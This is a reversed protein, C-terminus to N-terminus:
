NAAHRARAGSRSKSKGPSRRRMLSRLLAAMLHSQQPDYNDNPGYLNTPIVATFNAGHQDRYARCMSMGALKAVAYPENTPEPPGSFLHEEKMPQPCARPYVCSSSFFLLGKVNAQWAAHIVNTQIALNTYSFEARYTNNAFIGGVRAAAVFVFDPKETQFFQEVDSQRTLDLEAKSRLAFNDFGEARLRRVMASGVMGRHGAVYIKSHKDFIMGPLPATAMRHDRAVRRRPERLQDEQVRDGPADLELRVEEPAGAVEASQQPFSVSAGTIQGVLKALEGITVTSHGGINYVPQRGCLTAQWMLEVADSVYCYTRVAKGADMLEIRRQCLAKEIFSNLARKDGKRTGPGYALALRASVARVGQSRYANCITEGGRKGEIYCARPHM